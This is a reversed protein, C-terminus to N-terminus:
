MLGDRLLTVDVVGPGKAWSVAGLAAAKSPKSLRHASTLSEIEHRRNQRIGISPLTGCGVVSIFSVVRHPSPATAPSFSASHAFAAPFLSSRVARTGASVVTIGAFTAYGVSEPSAALATPLSTRVTRRTCAAPPAVPVTTVSRRRAALLDALDGARQALARRLRGRMRGTLAKPLARRGNRLM